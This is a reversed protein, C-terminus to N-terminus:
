PVLVSASGELKCTPGAGSRPVCAAVLAHREGTLWYTSDADILLEYSAPRQPAPTGALHGCLGPWASDPTTPAGECENMTYRLRYQHNAHAPVAGGPRPVSGTATEHILELSVASLTRAQDRIKLSVAPAQPDLRVALTWSGDQLTASIPSTAASGLIASTSAAAQGSGDTPRVPDGSNCAAALLACLAVAGYVRAHERMMDITSGTMACPWHMRLRRWGRQWEWTNVSAAAVRHGPAACVHHCDAWVFPQVETLLIGGVATDNPEVCM